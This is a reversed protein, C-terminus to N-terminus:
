MPLVFTHCPFSLGFLSGADFFSSDCCYLYSFNYSAEVDVLLLVTIRPLGIGLSTDDRPSPRSFVGALSRLLVLRPICCRPLALLVARSHPLSRLRSTFISCPYINNPRQDHLLQEAQYTLAALHLVKTSIKGEMTRREEKNKNDEESVSDNELQARVKKQIKDANSGGFKLGARLHLLLV